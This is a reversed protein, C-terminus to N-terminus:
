FMPLQIFFESGEGEKTEVKLEGGHAKIIDYSLSLGLGTGQGTPKTTFFPQFIKNLIEEPIGPGNDRVSILVKDSEKRTTVWVTPEFNAEAKALAEAKVENRVSLDASVAYFANNILNLVVRGIDQPIINISGISADFDTKMTANFSKDKARLGHYSLRLYEDCLANIDTPEKVGNSSRSHQLMGKVIDAARQGHHNIKQLNQSIDSLLEKVEQDEIKLEENRIRLEGVLENSVESFNNVFNLPNQIEHAIGATLEGLSAMKESQVLQSQTSKLNALTTELFRNAKQKKLNNRYLIIAILLIVGLGAILGLMNMKNAYATKEEDLKKLRLQEDFAFKQYDTLNSISANNLSDALTYTLQLYKFASDPKNMNIYSTYLSKYATVLLNPTGVDQASALQKKAYFLSSDKNNQERFIRSILGYAFPLRILENAALYREKSKQAFIMASDWMKKQMYLIAIFMYTSGVRYFGAKAAAIIAKNYFILASDPSSIRFIGAYGSHIIKGNNISEGLKLAEFYTAKVKEKDRLNGWLNGMMAYNMGLIAVRAEHGNKANSFTWPRWDDTENKEDTGLKQAEIHYEYSKMFNGLLNLVYGSQSYADAQWLNMKLQKSLALQQEHFYLGTDPKIDQYYFGLSRFAAMKITDNKEKLVAHKLSDAQHATVYGWTPDTQAIALAPILCLLFFKVFTKM